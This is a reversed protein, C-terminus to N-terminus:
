FVSQRFSLSVHIIKFLFSPLKLVSHMHTGTDTGAWRLQSFVAYVM